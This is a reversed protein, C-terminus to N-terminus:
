FRSPHPGPVPRKYAGCNVRAHPQCLAAAGLWFSSTKRTRVGHDKNRRKRSETRKKERERKRTPLLPRHNKWFPSHWCSQPQTPLLWGQPGLQRTLSVPDHPQKTWINVRNGAADQPLPCIDQRQSRSLCVKKAQTQESRAPCRGHRDSSGAGERQILKLKLNNHVQMFLRMNWVGWPLDKGPM